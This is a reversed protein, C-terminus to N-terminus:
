IDAIWVRRDGFWEASRLKAAAERLYPALCSQYGEGVMREHIEAARDLLGPLDPELPSYKRGRCADL